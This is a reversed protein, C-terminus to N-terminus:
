ALGNSSEEASESTSVGYSYPVPPPVHRSFPSALLHSHLSSSISSRKDTPYWMEHSVLKQHERSCFFMWDVGGKACSSCRTSSKKGCLVCEGLPSSPATSSSTSMNLTSTSVPVLLTLNSLALHSLSPFSLSSSSFRLPFLQCNRVASLGITSSLSSTQLTVVEISSECFRGKLFFLLNDIPFHSPQSKTCSSLSRPLPVLLLLSPPLPELDIYSCHILSRNSYPFSLFTLVL